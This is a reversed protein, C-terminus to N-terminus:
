DDEPFLKFGKLEEKHELAFLLLGRSGRLELKGCINNRHTDVTRPSVFLQKAIEKSTRNDAVLSLVRLETPTLSDLGASKIQKGELHRVRKLLFSSISPSLFTEGRSVALLGNTLDNIANEKLVYGSVGIDMARNFFSEEKYSTLIVVKLSIDKGLLRDALDLGNMGPMDIDLVAIEPKLELIGALAEEGHDAEGLIKFRDAKQIAERLGCRFIPHDDAIFINIPETM